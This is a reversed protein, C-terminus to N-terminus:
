NIPIRIGLTIGTISGLVFGISIGILSFKLNDAFTNNKRSEYMVKWYDIEPQLEVTAQKYGEKYANDISIDAEEFIIDIIAQVEEGTYTKTLDIGLENESNKSNTKSTQASLMPMLVILLLIVLLNKKLNM